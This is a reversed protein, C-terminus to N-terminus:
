GKLIRVLYRLEEDVEEPRTVTHAVELRLLERCRQRLRHVCQKLAGESLALEPGLTHYPEDTAEGWLHEVLRDFLAGKDAALYERRLQHLVRELVALAWRKEYATEPNAPDALAEAYRQEAAETDLSLLPQGGGRKLSSSKRWESVLFHQLTTLLFSRFRGRAANAQKLFDTEFCRAFFEQTVDQADEPGCGQLRVYTYLPFWYTRVLEAWAAQAPPSRGEAAALVVNWHTTTFWHEPEARSRRLAQGDTM